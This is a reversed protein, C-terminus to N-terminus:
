DNINKNRQFQYNKGCIYEKMRVKYKGDFYAKATSIGNNVVM